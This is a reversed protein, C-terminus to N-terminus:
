KRVQWRMGLQERTANWGYREVREPIVCNQKLLHTVLNTGTSFMGAAGLMRSEAPVIERFKACASSLGLIVPQSGYLDVIQRWTPLHPAQAALADEPVGADRLINLVREKGDDADMIENQEHTKMAADVKQVRMQDNIQNEKASLLQIPHHHHHLHHMRHDGGAASWQGAIEADLYPWCLLM